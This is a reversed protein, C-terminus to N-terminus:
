SDKSEIDFYTKKGGLYHALVVSTKLMGNMIIKDKVKRVQTFRSRKKIVTIPHILIWGLARLIGTVHNWDMKIISYGLAVFELMLRIFGVYFAVPISYNGFLMLLSNRHNLYYKRHSHMPLSVANKHYVVSAPEAWVEHGMAQLRWCLDIEEMHAFFIEEFKGAAFFIKKRVMMATGSAWFCKKAFDYQGSDEEQELFIRGRAFPFCFLDIHGGAGGAYDFINRKYYNLIKPQLAAISPNKKMREVLPQIWDFDQVTDNNLFLLFEGKAIDAGLNCGGAYGYNKDNELLIVDPHNEKIWAQSGDSSANDSVIIEFSNYSSKKLSDLCESLVDIGNWHPIIISVMPQIETM